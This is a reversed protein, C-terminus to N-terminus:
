PQNFCWELVKEGFLPVRVRLPIWVYLKGHNCSKKLHSLFEKDLIKNKSNLVIDESPIYFGYRLFHKQVGRVLRDELEPADTRIAKAVQTHRFRNAAWFIKLSPYLSWGAFFCFLTTLLLMRGFWGM